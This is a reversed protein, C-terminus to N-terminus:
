LGELSALREQAQCWMFVLDDDADDDEHGLLNLLAIAVGLTAAAEDFLGLGVEIDARAVLMAVAGPGDAPGSELTARTAVEEM